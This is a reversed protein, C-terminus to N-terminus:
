WPSYPTSYKAKAARLVKLNSDRESLNSKPFSFILIIIKAIFNAFNNLDNLKKRM